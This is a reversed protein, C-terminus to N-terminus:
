SEWGSLVLLADSVELWAMSFQYYNDVTLTEEEKLMLQHHFDHWPCWPSFGALLVKVAARMGRRMNDLCDTINDASYPGAIYIRKM